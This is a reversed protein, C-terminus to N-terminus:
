HRGMAVLLRAFAIITFGDAKTALTALDGEVFICGFIGEKRQEETLGRANFIYTDGGEQAPVLLGWPVENAYFDVEGNDFWSSDMNASTGPLLIPALLDTRGSEEQLERLASALATEGPEAYGRMVNFVPNLQDIFNRQQLVAGVYLKGFPNRTWLITTGGGGGDRWPQAYRFSPTSNPSVGFLVDIEHKSNVLAARFVGPMEVLGEGSDILVTWENAVGEEVPEPLHRPQLATDTTSEEGTVEPRAARAM